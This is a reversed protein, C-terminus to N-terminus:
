FPWSWSIISQMLFAHTMKRGEISVPAPHGEPADSVHTGTTRGRFTKMQGEVSSKLEYSQQRRWAKREKMAKYQRTRNQEKQSNTQTNKKRWKEAMRRRQQVYWIYIVWPHKIPRHKSLIPRTTEDTGANFTSILTNMDLDEEVDLVSLAACQAGVTIQFAEAVECDKPKGPDFNLRTHLQKTIIKLYPQFTMMLLDHASGNWAFQTDKRHKCKVPLVEADDAGYHLWDQQSTALFPM